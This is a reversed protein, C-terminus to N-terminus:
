TRPELCSGMFSAGDRQVTAFGPLSFSVRYTGSPLDTIRFQGSGDTVAARMKEILASSSGEVTVGPLVAGSTDRVTGTVSAQAWVVAPTVAMFAVAVILNLTSRLM